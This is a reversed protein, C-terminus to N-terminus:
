PAIREVAASWIRMCRAMDRFYNKAVPNWAMGRFADVSADISDALCRYAERYTSGSLKLESLWQTFDEIIFLWPLEHALDKMPNHQNRIHKAAPTGFRIKFGLHKACAQVTYGSFIDGYRDAPFGLIPPGMRWFYYAEIAEGALATNQTNIPCWTSAGLLVSQGKFRESRVPGYLATVADVDPHETWLGANIHVKGSEPVWQVGGPQHRHKYPFGRPYTSAPSVQLLDCVNFWGSQAHAAQEQINRNVVMHERIFASAPDPFNDDDISVVVESASELAMLYGINRRNDSDYPIISQIEGLKALFQDQEAVTPCLVPIGSSRADECRSFLAAPTKRDPIVIMQVQGSLGERRLMDAYTEIFQGQGITTAVISVPFAM